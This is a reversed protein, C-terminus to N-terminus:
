VRYGRNTCEQTLENLVKNKSYTLGTLIAQTNQMVADSEDNDKITIYSDRLSTIMRRVADLEVPKGSIISERICKKMYIYIKKLNRALEYEFHLNYIMEDITDRAKELNFTYQLKDSNENAVVADELYQLAIDYLVIVLGTKNSQSIRLQFERKKEKTM